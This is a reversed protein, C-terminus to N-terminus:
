LWTLAADRYKWGIWYFLPDEAMRRLTTAIFWPAVSVSRTTLTCHLDNSNLALLLVPRTHIMAPGQLSFIVCGDMTGFLRGDACGDSGRMRGDATPADM